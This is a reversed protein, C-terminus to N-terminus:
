ALANKKERLKELRDLAESEAEIRSWGKSRLGHVISDYFGQEDAPLFSM